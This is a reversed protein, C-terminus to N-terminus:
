GQKRKKKGEGQGGGSAEKEEGLAEYVEEVVKAAIEECSACGDYHLPLIFSIPARTRKAFANVSEVVDGVDIGYRHPRALEKSIGMKTPPHYKDGRWFVLVRHSDSSYCEESLAKIMTTRKTFPWARARAEEKNHKKDYDFREGYLTMTIEGRAHMRCRSFTAELYKHESDCYVYLPANLSDSAYPTITAAVFDSLDYQKSASSAM